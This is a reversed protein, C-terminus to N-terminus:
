EELLGSARAKDIAADMAAVDDQHTEEWYADLGDRAARLLRAAERALGDDRCVNGCLPESAQDPYDLSMGLVGRAYMLASREGDIQVCDPILRIVSTLSEVLGRALDLYDPTRRNWAAIAEEATDFYSTGNGCNSCFVAITWLGIRENRATTTLTIAGCFPCPKLEESM